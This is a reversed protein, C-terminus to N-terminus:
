WGCVELESSRLPAASSVFSGGAPLVTAPKRKDGFLPCEVLFSQPRRHGEQDEGDSVICMKMEEGGAELVLPWLKRVTVVVDRFFHVSLGWSGRGGRCLFSLIEGALLLAKLAFPSVFAVALRIRKPEEQVEM